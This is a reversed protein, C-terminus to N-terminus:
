EGRPEASRARVPQWGDHYEPDELRRCVDLVRDFSSRTAAAKQEGAPQDRWRRPSQTVENARLQEINM